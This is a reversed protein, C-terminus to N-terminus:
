HVSVPEFDNELAAIIATQYSPAVGLERGDGAVLMFHVKQDIEIRRVYAINDAGLRALDIESIQRQDKHAM